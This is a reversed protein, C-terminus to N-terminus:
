GGGTPIKQYTERQPEMIHSPIWPPFRGVLRASRRPDAWYVEDPKHIKEAIRRGDLPDTYALILNAVETLKKSYDVVLVIGTPWLAAPCSGREKLM